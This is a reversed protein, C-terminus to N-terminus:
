LLSALLVPLIKALVCVRRIGTRREAKEAWFCGRLDPLIESADANIVLLNRASLPRTVLRLGIQAVGWLLMRLLLMRSVIKNIRKGSEYHCVVGHVFSFM